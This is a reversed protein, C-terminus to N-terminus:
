EETRKDDLVSPMPRGAAKCLSLTFLIVLGIFVGLGLWCVLTM